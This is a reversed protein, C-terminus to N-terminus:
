PGTRGLDRDGEGPINKAARHIQGVPPPEIGPVGVVGRTFQPPRGSSLEQRILFSVEVELIDGAPGLHRGVPDLLRRPHQSCAFLPAACSPLPTCM